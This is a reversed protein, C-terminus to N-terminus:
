GPPTVVVLRGGRVLAAEIDPWAAEWMAILAGRRQNRDRLLVVVPGGEAEVEFDRDRTVVIRDERVAIAAIEPDGTRLGITQVHIADLGRAGFWRVANPPLNEDLLFRM